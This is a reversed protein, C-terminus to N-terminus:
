NFTFDDGSADLDKINITIFCKEGGNAKFVAKAIDKALAKATAGGCLNGDGRMELHSLKLGPSKLIPLDVVDDEFPWVKKAAKIIAKKKAHQCNHVVLYVENVRSM